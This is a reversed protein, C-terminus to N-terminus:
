VGFESESYNGPSASLEDKGVLKMWYGEYQGDKPRQLGTKCLGEGVLKEIMEKWALMELGKAEDEDIKYITWRFPVCEKRKMAFLICQMWTKVKKDFTEIMSQADYVLGTMDKGNWVSKACIARKDVKM